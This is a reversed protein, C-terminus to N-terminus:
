STNSGSSLRRIKSTILAFTPIRSSGIQEIANLLSCTYNQGIVYSRLMSELRFNDKSKDPINLVTHFISEVVNKKTHTVDINHPLELDKYYELRTLGAV